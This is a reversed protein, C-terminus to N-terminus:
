PARRTRRQAAPPYEKAAVLPTRRARSRLRAEGPRVNSNMLPTRERQSHCDRFARYATAPVRCLDLMAWCPWGYTRDGDLNYDPLVLPKGSMASDLVARCNEMASGYDKAIGAFGGGDRAQPGEVSNFMSTRIGPRREDIFADPTSTTITAAARPQARTPAVFVFGPKEAGTQPVATPVYSGIRAQEVVEEHPYDAYWRNGFRLHIWSALPTRLSVPSHAPTPM